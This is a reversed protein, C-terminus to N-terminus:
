KKNYVGIYKAVLTKVTIQYLCIFIVKELIKLIVHM